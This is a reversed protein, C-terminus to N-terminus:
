RLIFFFELGLLILLPGGNGERLGDEGFFSGNRLFSNNIQIPLVERQSQILRVDYVVALVCYNGEEWQDQIM